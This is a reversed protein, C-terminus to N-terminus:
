HSRVLASNSSGQSDWTTGGVGEKGLKVEKCLLACHGRRAVESCARWLIQQAAWVEKVCVKAPCPQCRQRTHWRLQFGGKEVHDAVPREGVNGDSDRALRLNGQQTSAPVWHRHSDRVARPQTRPDREHGAPRRGHAAPVASSPKASDRGPRSDGAQAAAAAWQCRRVAPRSLRSTLRGSRPDSARNCAPPPQINATAAAQTLYAPPPRTSPITPHRVQVQVRVWDRRRTPRKQRGPPAEPQAVWARLKLLIEM